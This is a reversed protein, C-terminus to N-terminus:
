AVGFVWSFASIVLLITSRIEFYFVITCFRPYLSINWFDSFKSRFLILDLVFYKRLLQLFRMPSVNQHSFSFLVLLFFSIGLRLSWNLNWLLLEKEKWTQFCELHIFIKKRKKKKLRNPCLNLLLTVDVGINQITKTAFHAVSREVTELLRM